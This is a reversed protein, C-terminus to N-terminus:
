IDEITYGLDTLIKTPDTVINGFLARISGSGSKGSPANILEFHTQWRAGSVTRMANGTSHVGTAHDVFYGIVDGKNVQKGISVMLAASPEDSLPTFPDSSLHAMLSYCNNAHDIIVVNGFGKDIDKGNFKAYAITGDAIAKVEYADNDSHSARVLIDVGKHANGSSRSAGFEGLGKRIFTTDLNTPPSIDSSSYGPPCDANAVTFILFSSFCLVKFIINM